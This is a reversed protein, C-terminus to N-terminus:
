AVITFELDNITLLVISTYKLRLQLPLTLILRLLDVPIETKQAYM